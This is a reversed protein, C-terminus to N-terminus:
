EWGEQTPPSPLPMWHTPQQGRRSYMWLCDVDACLDIGIHAPHQKDEHPRWVVVRSGDTPATSIPQWQSAARLREIEAAAELIVLQDIAESAKWPRIREARYRLKEVIDTM